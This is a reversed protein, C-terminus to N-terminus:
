KYRAWRVLDKFTPKRGYMFIGVRYIKASIWAMGVFSVYLVVLSTWIEWPAINFPIRALMVMPSTFPIMSLWLATVTNPDNAVSLSFVLAIIIPVVAFSQFQSADQINDVASGIAAFISAYFLFGGVLFLLVYFFLKALYGVSSFLALAQVMDPDVASTAADFGGANFLTVQEAVPEPMLMPLVFASMLCILVGWLTVQVVAVLGVGIIKGLMLQLPKVSSVVLELVRNNKEEIISTMVMQGYLLLFMYLIFTMAMGLFYSVMSSTSEGEGDENIRVTNLSVDVNVEAMIKDLNEINYNKLRETEIVDEITRTFTKEMDLVGADHLYLGQAKPNDVIGAGITLVGDYRSDALASDLPMSVPELTLYDIAAAEKELVPFVIGSDDIVAITRESPTSWTMILAPAAMMLLMFVPMLLTTILFSKKAVRESFERSIIIGINSKM